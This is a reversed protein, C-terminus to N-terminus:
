EASGRSSVVTDESPLAEHLCLMLRVRATFTPNQGEKMSKRGIYCLIHWPFNLSNFCSSYIDAVRWKHEQM